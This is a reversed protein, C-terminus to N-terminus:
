QYLPDAFLLICLRFVKFFKAIRYAALSEIYRQKKYFNSNTTYFCFSCLFNVFYAVKKSKKEIPKHSVSAMGAKATLRKMM